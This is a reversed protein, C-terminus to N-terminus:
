KYRGHIEDYVGSKKLRKLEIAFKDAITNVGPYKKSFCFHFNSSKIPFFRFKGSLNLNRIQYDTAEKSLYLFDFRQNNLMRLASAVNPAAFPKMGLDQLAKLSEYSTISASKHSRVDELTTPALGDFDARAYFGNTYESIPDSYLIFSEREKRYACTLIGVSTGNEASLLARKWPLFKIKPSFGLKKFIRSVLEYDFGRQGNVPEIMEYPPYDETVINLEGLDASAVVANSFCLILIVSILLNILKM